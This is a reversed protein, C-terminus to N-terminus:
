AGVGDGTNADTAYAAIIAANRTPQRAAIDALGRTSQFGAGPGRATKTSRLAARAGVATIQTKCIPRATPKIRPSAEVSLM